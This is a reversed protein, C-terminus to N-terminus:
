RRFSNQSSFIFFARSCNSKKEQCGQNKASKQAIKGIGDSRVKKSPKWIESFCLCNQARHTWLKSKIKEENKRWFQLYLFSQISYLCFYFFYCFVDIFYTFLLSFLWLKKNNNSEFTFSCVQGLSKWWFFFVIMLWTINPDLFFSKQLASKQSNFVKM